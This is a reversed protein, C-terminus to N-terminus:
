GWPGMSGKCIGLAMEMRGWSDQLDGLHSGEKEAEIFGVGGEKEKLQEENIFM